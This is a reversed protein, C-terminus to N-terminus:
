DDNFMLQDATRKIKKVPKVVKGDSKRKDRHQQYCTAEVMSNALWGECEPDYRYVIGDVSLAFTSYSQKGGNSWQAIAIQQMILNKSM